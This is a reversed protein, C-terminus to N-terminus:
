SPNFIGLKHMAWAIPDLYKYQDYTGQTQLIYGLFIVRVTDYIAGVYFLIRFMVFYLDHRRDNEQWIRHRKVSYQIFKYPSTEINHKWNLEVEASKHEM